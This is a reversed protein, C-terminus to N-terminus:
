AYESDDEEARILCNMFVKTAHRAAVEELACQLREVIEVSLLGIWRTELYGEREAGWFNLREFGLSALDRALADVAEARLDFCEFDQYWRLPENASVGNAHFDRLVDSLKLGEEANTV